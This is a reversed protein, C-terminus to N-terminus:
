DKKGIVMRYVGNTVGLVGVGIATFAVIAYVKDRPGKLWLPTKNPAQFYRQNQIVYNQKNLM